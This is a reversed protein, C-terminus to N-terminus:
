ITLDNEAKMEAAQRFLASMILGLLGAMAFMPVFLANYTALPRWSAYYCISFVLRVLAAGSILFGCVSAKKLAAANEHSFPTGRLVTSLVLRGQLLIVATCLGSFLLFLSLMATYPEQWVDRLYISFLNGLGDDVDYAFTAPLTALTMANEASFRFFVLPPVALLAMINCMLTIDVLRTLVKAIKVTSLSKM